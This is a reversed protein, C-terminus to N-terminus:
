LLANDIEITENAEGSLAIHQYSDGVIAEFKVTEKTIVDPGGSDTVRLQMRLVLPDPNIGQNGVILEFEYGDHTSECEGSVHLVPLERDPGPMLDYWAEWDACEFAM